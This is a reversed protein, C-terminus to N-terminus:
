KCCSGLVRAQKVTSDQLRYRRSKDTEIDRVRFCVNSLSNTQLEEPMGIDGVGLNDVIEVESTAQFELFDCLHPLLFGMKKVPKVGRHWDNFSLTSADDLSGVLIIQELDDVPTDLFLM